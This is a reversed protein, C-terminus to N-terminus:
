DRLAALSALGRRTLRSVECSFPQLLNRLLCFASVRLPKALEAPRLSQPLRIKASGSGPEFDRTEFSPADISLSKASAVEFMEM